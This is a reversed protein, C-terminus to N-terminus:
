SCNNRGNNLGTVIGDISVMYSVSQRASRRHALAAPLNQANEDCSTNGQKSSKDNADNDFQDVIVSGFILEIILGNVFLNRALNGINSTKSTKDIKVQLWIWEFM